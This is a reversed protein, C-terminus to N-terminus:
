PWTWAFPFNLRYFQLPGSIPIFVSQASNTSNFSTVTIWNTLALNTSGL